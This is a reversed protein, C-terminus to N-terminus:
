LLAPTNSSRHLLFLASEACAHLHSITEKRMILLYYFITQPKIFPRLRFLEFVVSTSFSSIPTGVGLVALSLDPFPIMADHYAVLSAALEVLSVM